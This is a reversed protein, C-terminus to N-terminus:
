FVFLTKLKRAWVENGLKNGGLLRFGLRAFYRRVYATQLAPNNNVSMLAKARYDRSEAAREFGNLFAKFLRNALKLNRVEPVIYMRQFYAHTGLKLEYSVKRLLVFVIGIIDGKESRAIAGPQRRLTRQSPNLLMNNGEGVASSAKMEARYADGYMAWFAQLEAKLADDVRGFVFEVQPDALSWARM